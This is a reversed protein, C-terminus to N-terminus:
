RLVLTFRSCRLRLSFPRPHAFNLVYSFVTWHLRVSSAPLSVRLLRPLSKSYIRHCEVVVPEDTREFVFPHLYAYIAPASRQRAIRLNTCFCPLCLALVICFMRTQVAYTGCRSINRPALVQVLSRFAPRGTRFQCGKSPM